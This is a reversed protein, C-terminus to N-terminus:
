LPKSARYEITVGDEAAYAYFGNTARTDLLTQDFFGVGYEQGNKYGQVSLLYPLSYLSSFPIFTGNISATGFGRREDQGVSIGAVPSALNTKKWNTRKNNFYITCAEQGSANIVEIEESTALAKADEDEDLEKIFDSIPIDSLM